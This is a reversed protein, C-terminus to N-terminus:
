SPCSKLVEAVIRMSDKWRPLNQGASWAGESLKLRAARDIVLQRVAVALSNACDKPVLIGAEPPVVEPIAGEDTGIVPLGRALAEAYVMGFGEYRSPLVFMDAEDYLPELEAESLVGVLKIRESLGRRHILAQLAESCRRDRSRDGVISCNWNDGRIMSLAEVLTDFGKRPIISGVSIIQAVDRSSGRARKAPLTGPPAIAIKRPPVRFLNELVSATTRSSVIVKWAQELAARESQFLTTAEDTGIGTELCLPHHVLAVFNRKVRRIMAAPLVGYILGDVIIAAKRDIKSVAEEWHRVNIGCDGQGHSPLEVHEAAVGHFPLHKLMERAYGYGGTRTEISGPIVLVAPLM